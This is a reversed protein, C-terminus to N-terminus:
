RRRITKRSKLSKRKKSKKSKRNRRSKGGWFGWSSKETGEILTGDSTNDFTKGDNSIFSWTTKDPHAAYTVIGALTRPEAGQYGGPGSYATYKYTANFSKSM